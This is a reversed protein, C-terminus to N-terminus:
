AACVGSYLRGPHFAADRGVDEFRVGGLEPARDAVVVVRAGPAATRALDAELGRLELRGLAFLDVSRAPLARLADAPDGAVLARSCSERAPAFDARAPEPPPAFLRGELLLRELRGPPVDFWREWLFGGLRRWLCTTWERDLMARREPETALARFRELRGRGHVLSAFARFSALRRELAGQTAVGRDITSLRALWFEDSEAPLRGRVRRYLLRRRESPRLGTFELYEEYPLERLAALKLEALRLQAPLRDVVILRRPGGALFRLLRDGGEASAVVARDACDPFQEDRWDSGQILDM